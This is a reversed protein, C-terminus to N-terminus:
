GLATIAKKLEGEIKFWEGELRYKDYKKHLLREEKQTAEFTALVKLKYPCGTQVGNIREYPNVSFGIKCISYELNGFIYVYTKDDGEKIRKKNIEEKHHKQKSKYKKNDSYNQLDGFTKQYLDILERNKISSVSIRKGDRLTHTLGHKKLKNYFYKRDRTSIKTSIIM